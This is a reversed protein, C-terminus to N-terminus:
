ELHLAFGFVTNYCILCHQTMIIMPMDLSAIVAGFNSTSNTQTVHFLDHHMTQLQSVNATFQTKYHFCTTKKPPQAGRGRRLESTASARPATRHQGPHQGTSDQMRVPPRDQNDQGGEPAVAM